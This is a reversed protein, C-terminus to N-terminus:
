FRYGKSFGLPKWRMWRRMCAEGRARRLLEPRGEAVAEDQIPAERRRRSRLLPPVELGLNPAKMSWWDGNM